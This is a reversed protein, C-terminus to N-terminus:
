LTATEDSSSWTLRMLDVPEGAVVSLEIPERIRLGLVDLPSGVIVDVVIM